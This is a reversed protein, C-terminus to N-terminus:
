ERAEAERRFINWFSSFSPVTREFTVKKSVVSRPASAAFAKGRRYNRKMIGKNSPTATFYSWRKKTNQSTGYRPMLRFTVCARARKSEAHAHTVRKASHVPGKMWGSCKARRSSLLHKLSRGAILRHFDIYSAQGPPKGLYRM